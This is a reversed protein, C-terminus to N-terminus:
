FRDPQDPHRQGPGPKIRGTKGAAGDDGSRQWDAPDDNWREANFWTAPHPCFKGAAKGAPSAAFAQVAELLQEFPVKGLAKRIADKARKLEVHRPYAEYIQEIQDDPPREGGSLQASLSNGNGNGNGNGIRERDVQAPNHRTSCADDVRSNDDSEIEAVATQRYDQIDEAQDLAPLESPSERNNILQHKRFTPVLGLWVNGVRYKVIFGATMLADLVHSFDLNDYPLVHLKIERPRWPFRGERDCVTFLGFWATRIPLGTSHELDFLGEHTLAEPKITRIRPRM